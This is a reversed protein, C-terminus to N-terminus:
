RQPWYIDDGNRRFFDPSWIHWYMGLVSHFGPSHYYTWILPGYITRGIYFTLRLGPPRTHPLYRKRDFGCLAMYPGSSLVYVMVAVFAWLVYSGLGRSKKEDTEPTPQATESMVRLNANTALITQGGAGRLEIEPGKRGAVAL